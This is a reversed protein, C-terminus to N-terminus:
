RGLEPTPEYPTYEGLTDAIQEQTIPDSLFVITLNFAMGANLADQLNRHIDELVQRQAETNQTFYYRETMTQREHKILGWIAYGVLFGGIVIAIDRRNM